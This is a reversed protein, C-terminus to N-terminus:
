PRPGTWDARSRAARHRGCQSLSRRGNKLRRFLPPYGSTLLCSRPPPPGTRPPTRGRPGGGVVIIVVNAADTVMATRLAVPAAIIAQM